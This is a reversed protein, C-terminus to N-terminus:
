VIVKYNSEIPHNENVYKIGCDSVVSLSLLVLFNYMYSEEMIISTNRLVTDIIGMDGVSLDSIKRDILDNSKSLLDENIADFSGMMESVKDEADGVSHRPLYVAIECEEVIGYCGWM